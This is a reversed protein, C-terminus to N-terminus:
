DSLYYSKRKSNVFEDKIRNSNISNFTKKGELLQIIFYMSYVGCESNQYQHRTQNYAYKIDMGLETGQEQIRKILVDVENPPATGYSDFYYVNKKKLDLYMAVWHSGPKDHPDLNYIIGVNDIGNKHLKTLSLNSLECNIKTPCDAPVPGLFMFNKYLKEDKTLDAIRLGSIEKNFFVASNFVAQQEDSTMLNFLFTEERDCVMKLQLSEHRLTKM